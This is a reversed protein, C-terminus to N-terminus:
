EVIVTKGDHIQKIVVEESAVHGEKFTITNSYGEYDKLSLLYDRIQESTWAGSQIAKLVLTTMDYATAASIAGPKKGFRAEYKQTFAEMQPYPKPVAYVAGESYQAFNELFVASEARYYTLYLPVNINLEKLQKNFIGQGDDTAIATYIADPHLDRIKLIETRYDKDEDNIKFEAAIALNGNKELEDKFVAINAFSWANNSYVLVIKKREQKVIYEILKRLEGRESPTGTLFYNLHNSDFGVTMWPSIFLVKKDTSIPYVLESFEAWEPGIVISAGDLDILKNAVTVVTKPDSQCDEISYDIKMGSDELAMLFGDRSAEGAFAAYGTM